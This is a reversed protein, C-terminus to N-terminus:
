STCAGLAASLLQYPSPGADQGGAATPEDALLHHPGVQIDNGFKGRGNEAVVVTNAEEAM